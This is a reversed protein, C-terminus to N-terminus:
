SNAATSVMMGHDVDCDAPTLCYAQLPRLESVDTEGWWLWQVLRGLDPSRPPWLGRRVIRESFSEQLLDNAIRLTPGTGVERQLWFNWKKKRFCVHITESYQSAPVRQRKLYLEVLIREVRWDQISAFFIRAIGTPKCWEVTRHTTYGSLHLWAWSYISIDLVHVGERML